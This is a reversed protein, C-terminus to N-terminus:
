KNTNGNNKRELNYQLVANLMAAKKDDPIKLMGIEKRAVQVTPNASINKAAQLISNTIVGGYKDATAGGIAGLAGGVSAGFAGGAEGGGFGGLAGGIAARAINSFLNVRKSGQTSEKAIVASANVDAIDQAINTEALDDLKNILMQDKTGKLREMTITKNAVDAPNYLNRKVLMQKLNRIEAQPKTLAEYEPVSNKLISDLRSRIAFAERDGPNLPKGSRMVGTPQYDISADLDSLYKKATVASVKTGGKELRDVLNQLRSQIAQAEPTLAGISESTQKVSVIPKGYEDLLPSSVKVTKQIPSYARKKIESQAKELVPKLEVTQNSGELADLSQLYLSNAKQDLTDVTQKVQEGINKRAADIADRDMLEPRINVKGKLIKNQTNTDIGFLISLAGKAVKPTANKILSIAEIGASVGAGFKGADKAAQLQESIPAGEIAKQTGAVAGAGLASGAIGALGAIKPSQAVYEALQKTPGTMQMLNSVAKPAGSIVAPGAGMFSGALTSGLATTPYRERLKEQLAVDEGYKAKLNELGLKGIDGTQIAERGAQLGAQVGSLIPESAGLTAASAIGRLGTAGAELIQQPISPTPEPTVPQGNLIAAQEEPSKNMFDLEDLYAQQEDPSLKMFEKESLEKFAM